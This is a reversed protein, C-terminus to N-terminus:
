DNLNKKEVIVYLLMFIISFYSVNLVLLLIQIM